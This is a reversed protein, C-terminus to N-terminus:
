PETALVQVAGSNFIVCLQTKGSGNDRAFLRATNAAGGSPATMESFEEYNAAMEIPVAMRLSTSYLMMREAPAVSGSAATTFQIRGPASSDTFAGDSFFNIASSSVWGTTGYGRASFFMLGRGAVSIASPSGLTGDSRIGQWSTGTGASRLQIIPNSAKIIEVISGASIASATGGILVTGLTADSTPFLSLNGGSATGGYVTPTYIAGFTPTASTHLDQPLSLTITGDTDDTVTVQNATGTVWSALNGVPVVRKDADTALLRTATAGSLLLPDSVIVDGKTAHSTSALTLDDGSATGGIITQGTARGALLVYQTHDDDALGTHEGHDLLAAAQYGDVTDADFGNGAGTPLWELGIKGDPGAVPLRGPGSTVYGAGGSKRDIIREATNKPM